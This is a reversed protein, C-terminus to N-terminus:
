TRASFAATGRHASLLSLMALLLNNRAALLPERADGRHAAAGAEFM